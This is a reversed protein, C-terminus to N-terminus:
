LITPAAQPARSPPGARIVTRTAGDQRPAVAALEPHREVQWAAVVVAVAQALDACPGRRALRREMQKQGDALLMVVIESDAMDVVVSEQSSTRPADLLVDLQQAVASPAPCTSDGRVEVTVAGLITSGLLLSPLIM